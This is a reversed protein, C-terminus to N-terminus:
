PVETATSILGLAKRWRTRKANSFDGVVKSRSNFLHDKPKAVGTATMISGERADILVDALMASSGFFILTSPRCPMPVLPSM